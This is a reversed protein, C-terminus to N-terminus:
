GKPLADIWDVCLKIAADESKPKFSHDGPVVQSAFDSTIYKQEEVLQTLPCLKDNHGTIFLIPAKIKGLHSWDRPKPNKGMGCIPLGYFVLARIDDREAAVFSGVRAGFSKGVLIPSGFQRMYEVASALEPQEKKRGASPAPRVGMYSFNFRLVRFGLDALQEATKVLIPADLGRGAGHSVIVPGRNGAGNMTGVM